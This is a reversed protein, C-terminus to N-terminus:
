VVASVMPPEADPAKLIGPPTSNGSRPAAQQHLEGFRSRCSVFAHAVFPSETVLVHRTHLYGVMVHSFTPGTHHQRFYLLLNVTFSPNSSHARTFFLISLSRSGSLASPSQSDTSVQNIAGLTKLVTRFATAKYFFPLKVCAFSISVIAM